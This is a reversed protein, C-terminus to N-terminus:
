DREVRAKSHESTRGPLGLLLAIPGLLLLWMSLQLNYQQALWGLAVPLLSGVLGSINKAALAAGSRGPLASYLQAQLIAYWGSNFFGLLALAAMKVLWDAVLLFTIYLILELFASVRLYALGSVRELLPILLFDGLLGVGAWVSVALTAQAPSVKVVDVFYLALFGLLIDLMLDSFELLILWRLVGRRKVAQFASRIGTEFGTLLRGGKNDPDGGQIPIRWTFGLILLTMAAFLVYMSRWSFHLLVAGGLALPGLVVGLSGAFTWRAMNQERRLPEADMLEAQSVNVFAGNAPGFLMFSILLPLFGWSAATLGLSLAFVIGGGLILARRNWTDALIGLAPEVLNSIFAPLSLLIGIQFYSLALDDRILPWAAEGAGFILEDLFEILLLISLIVAPRRISSTLHRSM